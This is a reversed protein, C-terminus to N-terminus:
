PSKQTAYYLHLGDYECPSFARSQPRQGLVFRFPHDLDVPFRDERVTEFLEDLQPRLLEQDHHAVALLVDDVVVPVFKLPDRDRVGVLALLLPQGVRQQGDLLVDVVVEHEDEAVVDEARVELVDDSPLLFVAGVRREEDVLLYPSITSTM